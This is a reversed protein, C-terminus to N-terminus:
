YFILLYSIKVYKETTQMQKEFISVNEEKQWVICQHTIISVGCLDCSASATKLHGDITNIVWVANFKNFVFFIRVQISIAKIDEICVILKLKFIYAIFNRLKCVPTKMDSNSFKM